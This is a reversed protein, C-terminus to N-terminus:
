TSPRNLSAIRPQAEDEKVFHEEGAGALGSIRKLAEGGRGFDPDLRLTQRDDFARHADVQPQRAVVVVVSMDLLM